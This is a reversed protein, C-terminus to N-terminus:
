AAKGGRFRFGAKKPQVVSETLTTDDGLKTTTTVVENGILDEVKLTDRFKNRFELAYLVLARPKKNAIAFLTSVPWNITEKWDAGVSTSFDGLKKELAAMEAVGMREEPLKTIIDLVEEMDKANLIPADEEARIAKIDAGSKPAGMATETKVPGVATTNKVVPNALQQKLLDANMQTLEALNNPLVDIIPIIPIRKKKANPVAGGVIRYWVDLDANKHVWSPPRAPERKKMDTKWPVDVVTTGGVQTTSPVSSRPADGKTAVDQPLPPPSAPKSGRFSFKSTKAAVPTTAAALEAAKKESAAQVQALYGAYDHENSTQGWDYQDGLENKGLWIPDGETALITLSGRHGIHSLLLENFREGNLKAMIKAIDGDAFECIDLITPLIIKTAFNYEETHGSATDAHKSFDGELGIVLFPNNDSDSLVLPQIDDTSFKEGLQGLYILAPFDKANGLFEEMQGMSPTVAERVISLEANAGSNDQVAFGFATPKLDLLYRLLDMDPNHGARKTMIRQTNM